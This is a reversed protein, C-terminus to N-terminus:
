YLEIVIDPFAKKLATAIRQWNRCKEMDLKFRSFTQYGTYINDYGKSLGLCNEMHKKDAWFTYLSYMNEGNEEYESLMILYANGTYLNLTFERTKDENNQVLTAEGCKEDWKWQLAM